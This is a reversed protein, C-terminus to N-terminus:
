KELEFIIEINNDHAFDVEAMAGKSKEWGIMAVLVDCRKLIEIDGDLWVTDPAAGDLLSTNKHPCIVAYGLRWYKLAVEEARRINEVIGHPTPARYPGAIYAVKV